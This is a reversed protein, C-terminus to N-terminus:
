EVDAGIGCGGVQPIKRPVGDVAAYGFGDVGLRAGSHIISRSGIRTGAYVTVHPHLVVDEALECERGVVTHAGIRCRDGLRAGPEVVAGPGISVDAGITADTAITATDHIGPEARREPYLRPLVVALAAYVDDSVIRPLRDPVRDALESTVLLLGASSRQLYPLYRARAVISLDRPGARDLPAAGTIDPDAGGELEADLLRAIESATM